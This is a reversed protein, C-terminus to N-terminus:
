KLFFDKIFNNKKTILNKQKKIFIKTLINDLETHNRLFIKKKDFIKYHDLYKTRFFSSKFFNPFDFINFKIDYNLFLTPRNLLSSEIGITSLFNIHLTANLLLRLKKKYNKEFRMYSIQKNIKRRILVKGYNVIFINKHKIKKRLNVKKSFFPYPRVYLKVNIKNELLFKGIHNIIEFEEEAIRSNEEVCCSYLIYKNKNNYKM